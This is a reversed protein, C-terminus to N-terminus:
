IFVKFLGTTVIYVVHGLTLYFSHMIVCLANVPKAHKEFGAFNDKYHLRLTKQSTRFSFYLHSSNLFKLTSLYFHEATQTVM